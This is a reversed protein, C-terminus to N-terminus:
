PPAQIWAASAVVATGKTERLARVATDSAALGSSDGTDM